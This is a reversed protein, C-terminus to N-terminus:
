GAYLWEPWRERIPGVKRGVTYIGDDRMEVPMRYAELLRRVWALEPRPQDRFVGTELRIVAFGSDELLQRIERPAYERNHRPDVEGKRNPRIYQPFFGPHYGHLIAAVARLSTINPTTLVVHGGPRLIRNIESMMQMPDEFLHEILECCLVTAFHGDPYPFRDKEADFLDVDCEFVSGDNATATRHEVIGAEGYYCGRVEGYGLRNRLSPTIQLYSGMELIRDEPGGAPTIELTRTLRALHTDVYSRFQPDEPAWDLVASTPVEGVTAPLEPEADVVPLAPEPWETGRAVADLFDAYRRAALGWSCESAVYARARKGFGDAAERNSVLVNLYEYIVDEEGPGVPVKLCVDDPFDCFSGVDSVLAPRGAGLARLLTGSSEGVTPYRLNLVVDCAAIYGTFDQIPTFGLVRVAGALGLNSIMQQVPYDPHPEGVLIMRARPEVRLLRRFARLSESIRKYPKLFGFIGILPTSADLGLRERYGMRDGDEIWAGHPIKAVPGSFGAKRAQELMHGSHVVVGRARELVRRLMPVGDYDPGVQLAKVRRAYELARAGGEYECERLYADWDNRCITLDTILHHLNAEHLVVVGPWRLAAEYVFAHHPNNGVQYVLTSYRAPEFAKPAEAIVELDTLRRLEGVLAASYDAIGSKAPPMPSFLAVRM